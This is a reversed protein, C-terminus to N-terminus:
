VWYWNGRERGGGRELGGAMLGHLSNVLPGELAFLWCQAWGPRFEFCMSLLVARGRRGKM